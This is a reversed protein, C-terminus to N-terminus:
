FKERGHFIILYAALVVLTCFDLGHNRGAYLSLNVAVLGFFFVCLMVRLVVNLRKSRTNMSKGILDITIGNQPFLLCWLFEVSFDAFIQPIQPYIVIAM